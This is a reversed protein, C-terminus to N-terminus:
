PHRSAQRLKFNWIAVNVKLQEIQALIPMQTKKTLTTVRVSRENRVNQFSHIILDKLSHATGPCSTLM